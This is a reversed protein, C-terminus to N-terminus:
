KDCFPRPHGIHYGQAMDVGCERVIDCITESEVFEAITKINLSKAMNVIARLIKVEKPNKDLNRIFVGDLKIFDFDIELLRALSSNEIGFDDVAIMFGLAKLARLQELIVRHQEGLTVTELVEFTVRSPDIAFREIKQELFDIFYRDLLDRQTLNISFNTDTGEFCAFSKGIMMRTVSNVLGLQEAPGLFLYPSLLNGEYDGRALVEYKVLDGSQLDIIPQIFPVLAERAILDNTVNLWKITEKAQQVSEASDDYFYYYRSGVEKGIDLAYEANVTPYFDDTIRAIGISFGISVETNEVNLPRMDFFGIIQDCYEEVKEVSAERTLIVFRDSETKFLRAYPGIHRKLANAAEKLIVNAFAKGYQKNIVSFNSIDLLLLHRFEGTEIETGLKVFNSLGTLPDHNYLYELERTKEQVMGDLNANLTELERNKQHLAKRLELPEVIKRLRAVLEKFNLPKMLYGDVHLNVAKLLYDTENYATTIIIPVEADVERIRDIMDLGNMRPMQIDTIVIDPREREFLELGEEGDYACYLTDVWSELFFAVEESIDPNDEVYLIRYSELGNLQFSGM